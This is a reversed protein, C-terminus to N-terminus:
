SQALRIRRSNSYTSSHKNTQWTRIHYVDIVDNIVEDMMISNIRLHYVYLTIVYLTLNRSEGLLYFFSFESKYTVHHFTVRLINLNNEMVVFYFKLNPISAYHFILLLSFSREKSVGSTMIFDEAPFIHHVYIPYFIELYIFCFAKTWSSKSYGCQSIYPPFYQWSQLSNDSSSRCGHHNYRTVAFDVTVVLISIYYICITM